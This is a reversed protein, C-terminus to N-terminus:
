FKLRAYFTSLALVIFLGAMGLAIPGWFLAGGPILVLLIGALFLSAGIIPFNRAHRKGMARRVGEAVGGGLAPGLFFAALFGIFLFRGLFLILLFAALSTLLGGIFTTVAGKLIDATTATYFKDQQERVCDPCRYGVPTRIACETCIPKGCKNCRLTTERDPHYDCHLIELDSEPGQAAEVDTPRGELEALLAKADDNYPNLALVRQLYGRKEEPANVLSALHM